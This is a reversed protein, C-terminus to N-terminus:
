KRRFNVLRPYTASPNGDLLGDNQGKLYKDLFSLICAHMARWAERRSPVSGPSNVWYWGSLFDNHTVDSVQVWYADTVAKSFFQSSSNATSNLMLSPKQLGRSDLEPPSAVTGYDLSIAALCRSEVRCLEGATPGGYSVGAVAVRGLDLAGALVSDSENVQPLQDLLFVFDRIRDYIGPVDLNVDGVRKFLTGDPWVFGWADWHDLAVVVYGRSALNEAMEPSDNHNCGGGGHSYLLIPYPAHAKLLPANVFSYSVFRPGRDGWTSSGWWVPDSDMPEDEFAAPLQGVNPAAPYWVYLPFTGNTSVQFRNRRSSDALLRVVKGVSYPGTPAMCPAILNTHVLRYFRQSESSGDLDVSVLPPNVANALSQLAPPEWLILDRSTELPFLSYYPTFRKHTGATLGLRVAGDALREISAFRNADMGTIDCITVTATVNAAAGLEMGGTPNGLTVRLREDAEALGDNVIPIRLTQSMQGAAFQLVGNTAGHDEVSTTLNTITYEVQFPALLQDNGRLVTLLAGGQDEHAYV